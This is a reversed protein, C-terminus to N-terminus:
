KLEGIPSPLAIVVTQSNKDFVAERARVKRLIWGEYAEGIRLRIADGTSNKTFVAFSEASSFVVGVLKLQPRDAEQPATPRVPDVSPAAAVAPPPLRRSRLFIPRERTVTLSSLPIGWLPNSTLPADGPPTAPHSGEGPTTMGQVPDIEKRPDFPVNVAAGVSSLSGVALLM